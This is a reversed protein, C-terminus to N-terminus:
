RFGAELARRLDDPTDIDTLCGPDDVPLSTLQDLAGNIIRRAGEQGKLGSLQGRWHPAFGVPHGRKGQFTPAALSAGGAIAERVRAITAPRLFPLDALLVLIGCEAPLAAIGAALTDGMPADSGPVALWGYGHATLLAQLAQNSEGVVVLPAEGLGAVATALTHLILPRSDPLPQLLKDSGFRRSQGAALLLGAVSQAVGSM